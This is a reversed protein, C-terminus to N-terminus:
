KELPGHYDIIGGINQARYGQANLQQVAKSSRAGSRCYVYLEREKSENFQGISDLPVNISAPIRGSRYEQRSRVDLLVANTNRKYEKILADIDIKKRRFFM